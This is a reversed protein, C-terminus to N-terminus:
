NAAAHYGAREADAPTAFCDEPNTQNYSGGSPVHYIHSSANGKIPYDPPCQNRSIPAARGSGAPAATPAAPAPAVPRATAPAVPASTPAVAVPTRTATPFVPFVEDPTVVPRRTATVSVGATPLM